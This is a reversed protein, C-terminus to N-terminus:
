PLIVKPAPANSFGALTLEIRGRAASIAEYFEAPKNVERGNVRTIIDGYKLKATAAPRFPQVDCILVGGPISELQKVLLSTFDVRLGRVYPRNGTSSAISKGPLSFRVLEVEVTSPGGHLRRVELKVKAAALQKGLALLLDDGERIPLDNVKTIVDGPRLRAQREAPSGVAVHSLTAGQGKEEALVGVGLFGYEVEEGRKLVDIIRRMGADLPVAFGGPTEGGYLAALATTLGVMEGQLNVLAGGSCGLNLRADTQLLTGYQHLNKTRQEERPAGPARQRTNSIIGWSASPRGDRFGAAYPNAISLIFQGRACKDGDGFRMVKLGV